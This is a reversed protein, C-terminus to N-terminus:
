FEQEIAEYLLTTTPISKPVRPDSKRIEFPLFEHSKPYFLYRCLFVLVETTRHKKFSFSGIKREFFSFHTKYRTEYDFVQIEEKGQYEIALASSMGM